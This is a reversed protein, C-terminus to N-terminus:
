KLPIIIEYYDKMQDPYGRAFLHRLFIDGHISYPTKALYERVSVISDYDKNVMTEIVSILCLRPQIVKYHKEDIFKGKYNVLTMAYNLHNKEKRFMQSNCTLFFEKPIIFTFMALDHDYSENFHQVDSLINDGDIKQYIIPPCM